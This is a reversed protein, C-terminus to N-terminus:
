YFITASSPISGGVKEKAVDRMACFLIQITTLRQQGDILELFKEGDEITQALIFSGIFTNENHIDDFFDSLQDDGWDYPRQYLPVKFSIKTEFFIAGLTKSQANFLLRNNPM